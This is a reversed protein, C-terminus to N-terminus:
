NHISYIESVRYGNDTKYFNMPYVKYYDPKIGNYPGHGQEDTFGAIRNILIDDEDQYALEYRDYEEMYGYPFEGSYAYSGLTGEDDFVVPNETGALILSNIMDSTFTEEMLARYEEYTIGTHKIYEGEDVYVNSYKDSGVSDAIWSSMSAIDACSKILAEDYLGWLEDTMFDADERKVGRVENEASISDEFLMTDPNWVLADGYDFLTEVRYKEGEIIEYVDLLRDVTLIDGNLWLGVDDINYYDFIDCSDENVIDFEYYRDDIFEYGFRSFQYYGMNAYYGVVAFVDKTNIPLVSAYVADLGVSFQNIIQMTDLNYLAYITRAIGAVHPTGEVWFGVIVENRDVGTFSGYYTDTMHLYSKAEVEEFASLYDDLSIDIQNILKQEDLEVEESETEVEVEAETESEM